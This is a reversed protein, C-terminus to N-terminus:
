AGVAFVYEEFHRHPSVLDVGGALAELFVRALPDDEIEVFDYANVERQLNAAGRVYHLNRSRRWDNVRSRGSEASDDVLAGRCLQWQVRAIDILQQLQLGAHLRM